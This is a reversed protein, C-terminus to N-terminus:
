TFMNDKVYHLKNSFNKSIHKVLSKENMYRTLMKTLKGYDVHM